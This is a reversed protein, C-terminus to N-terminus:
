PTYVYKYIVGGYHSVAYVNGDPGRGFAVPSGVEDFDYRTTVTNTSNMTLVHIWGAGVDGYFYANAYPAPYNSGEAFVGGAIVNGIESGSSHNYSHIPKTTAGFDVTNPDCALNDKPCPGEYNPWGYNNGAGLSDIEEWTQSGVDAVIYSENSARLSFRWPNRFGYAYTEKRAGVTNYFPNDSPITGDPNIRLIKGRLTDLGQADNPCCGSEGVSIYIKGDFGFHIDGGNHNGNTSPIHDLLIREKFGPQHQRKKLRAVRNEPDGSYNKAGPGTTYYVYIFKNSAYNPDLAIGLLGRESETSVHLTTLPNPKLVGDERVVRIAGGKETVFIRDGKFVMATPETLGAGVDVRTFGTPLAQRAARTPSPTFAWLAFLMLLPSIYWVRKM